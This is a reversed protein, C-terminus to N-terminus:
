RTTDARIEQGDILLRKVQAQGAVNVAVELRATKEQAAKQLKAELAGADQEPIYYRRLQELSRAQVFGSCEDKARSCTARRVRPPENEANPELCWCCEEKGDDCPELEAEEHLDLRFQIYHGRLLDRPDYGTVDFVWARSNALHKEARVVGMVLVALPLLLALVLAKRSM